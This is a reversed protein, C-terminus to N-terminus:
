RILLIVGTAFRIQAELREDESFACSLTPQTETWEPFFDCGSWGSSNRRTESWALGTATAGIRVLENTVGGIWASDYAFLPANPMKVPKGAVPKRVESTGAFVSKVVAVRATEAGVCGQNSDLFSLVLTYLRDQAPIEEPGLPTWTVSSAGSAVATQSSAGTLDTVTLVACSAGSPWEVPLDVSRTFLTEWHLTGLPATEVFTGGYSCFSLIASMCAFSVTRLRFWM